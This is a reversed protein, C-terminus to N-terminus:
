RRRSAPRPRKRATSVRRIMSAPRAKMTTRGTKGHPTKPLRAAREGPKANPEGPEVDGVLEKPLRLAFFHVQGFADGALLTRHNPAIACSTFDTDGTFRAMEQGADVNWLRLTRDSAASVVLSADSTMAVARIRGTHGQLVKLLKWTELDWIRITRDSSCSAARLGEAAQGVAIGTVPGVHGRLERERVLRVSSLQWVHIVGAEPQEEDSPTLEGGGILAFRCDATLAVAYGRQDPLERLRNRRLDIMAAGHRGAFVAYRGDRTVALAEAWGEHRIRKAPRSATLDHVRLVGGSIFQQTPGIVAVCGIPGHIDIRLQRIPNGTALDWIRVVKDPSVSIAYRSGSDIAIGRVWDHHRPRTLLSGLNSADWVTPIDWRERGNAIFQPGLGTFKWPSAMGGPEDYRLLPDPAGFDRVVCRRGTLRAVVFQGDASATFHEIERIEAPELGLAKRDLTTGSELNRLEIEGTLAMGVVRDHPGHIEAHILGELAVMPGSWLRSGTQSDWRVLTREASLALGIYESGDSGSQVRTLFDGFVGLVSRGDASFWLFECDVDPPLSDVQLPAIEEGSHFAWIRGEWAFRQQDASVAIPFQRTRQWGVTSYRKKRGPRRIVRPPAAEVDRHEQLAGGREFVKGTALNLLVPCTAGAESSEICLASKGDPALALNKAWKPLSTVRGTTTMTPAVPLLPATALMHALRTRLAELDSNGAGPLRALLQAEFQGWNPEERMALIAGLLAFQLWCLAPDEMESTYDRCLEAAGVRVLKARMWDPDLLVSRLAARHGATRLHDAAHRLAYTPATAAGARHMEWCWDALTEDVGQDKALQRLYHAFEEHFPRFV